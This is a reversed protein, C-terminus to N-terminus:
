NNHTPVTNVCPQLLRAPRQHPLCNRCLGKEVVFSWGARHWVTISRQCHLSPQPGDCSTSSTPYGYRQRLYVDGAQAEFHTLRVRGPPSCGASRGGGCGSPSMSTSAKMGGLVGVTAAITVVDARANGAATPSPRRTSPRSCWGRRSAKLQSM